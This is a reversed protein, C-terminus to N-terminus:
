RTTCDRCARSPPGCHRLGRGSADVDVCGFARAESRAVSVTAVTLDASKEQHRELMRSVDMKYVHDAGFVLVDRPREERLLDLNQWIADATGRFWSRDINMAAPVPDIYQDLVGPAVTWARAIHRLLSTARYQTLVKIRLIRSNVLNSLVFDVLRYRGGFYVAPKSRERTLPFLRSGEGGALVLAVASYM